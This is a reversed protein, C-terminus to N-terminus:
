ETSYYEDDNPGDQITPLAPENPNEEPPVPAANLQLKPSLSCATERWNNTWRSLRHQVPEMAKVMLMKILKIHASQPVSKTKAEHDMLEQRRDHSNVTAAEKQMADLIAAKVLENTMFPNYLGLEQHYRDVAWLEVVAIAVSAKGVHARYEMYETAQRLALQDEGPQIYEQNGDQTSYEQWKQWAKAQIEPKYSATVMKCMKVRAESQVWDEISSKMRRGAKDKWICHKEVARGVILEVKARHYHDPCCAANRRDTGPNVEVRM